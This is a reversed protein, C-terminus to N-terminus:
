YSGETLLTKTKSSKWCPPDQPLTRYLCRVHCREGYYMHESSSTQSKQQLARGTTCTRATSLLSRICTSSLQLPRICACLLKLPCFNFPVTHSCPPLRSGSPCLPCRRPRGEQRAVVHGTRVGAHHVRLLEEGVEFGQRPVFVLHVKWKGGTRTVMTFGGSSLGPTSGAQEWIALQKENSVAPIRPQQYAPPARPPAAPWFPECAAAETAM